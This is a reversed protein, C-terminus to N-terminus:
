RSTPPSQKKDDRAAGVKGSLLLKASITFIGIAVLGVIIGIVLELRRKRMKFSNGTVIAFGRGRPESSFEFGRRENFIESLDAETMRGGAAKVKAWTYLESELVNVADITNRDIDFTLMHGGYIGFAIAALLVLALRFPPVNLM